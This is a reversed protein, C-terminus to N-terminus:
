PTGHSREVEALWARVVDLGEYAHAQARRLADQDRWALVAELLDV